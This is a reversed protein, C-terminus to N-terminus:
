GGRSRRPLGGLGCAEAERGRRRLRMSQDKALRELAEASRDGAEYLGQLQAVLVRAREDESASTFIREVVAHADRSM